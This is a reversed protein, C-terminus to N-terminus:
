YFCMGYNKKEGRQKDFLLRANLYVLSTTLVTYPECVYLEYKIKVTFLTALNFKKEFKELNLHKIVYLSIGISKIKGIKLMIFFYCFIFDSVFSIKKTIKCADEIDLFKFNCNVIFERMGFRAVVGFFDRTLYFYSAVSFEIEFFFSFFNFLSICHLATETSHGKRSSYLEVIEEHRNVMQLMFTMVSEKKKRVYLM